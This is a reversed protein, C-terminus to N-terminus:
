NYLFWPPDRLFSNFCEARTEVTGEHFSSFSWSEKEVPVRDGVSLTVSPSQSVFSTYSSVMSVFLAGFPRRRPGEPKEVSGTRSEDGKWGTVTPVHPHGM